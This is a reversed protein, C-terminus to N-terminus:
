GKLVRDLRPHEQKLVANPRTRGTAEKIAEIASERLFASMTSGTLCVHHFLEDYEDPRLKVTVRVTLGVKNDADTM